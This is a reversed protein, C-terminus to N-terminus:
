CFPYFSRLFYKMILRWSLINGVERPTSGAVEQDGTSRVDFQAVSALAPTNPSLERVEKNFCINMSENINGQCNYELVEPSRIFVWLMNDDFLNIKMPQCTMLGSCMMM